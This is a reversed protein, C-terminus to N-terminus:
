REVAAAGKGVGSPPDPARHTKEQQKWIKGWLEHREQKSGSKKEGCNMGKKNAELNKEGCNMGKKNAELNEGARENDGAHDDAM